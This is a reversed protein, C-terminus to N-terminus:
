FHLGLSAYGKAFNIVSLIPYYGGKHHPWCDFHGGSENHYKSVDWHSTVGKNQGTGDVYVLPHNHPDANHWAALIQATARLQIERGLWQHYAQEHTILGKQLLTPINSVNEIGISQTNVGGAQWFIANGLGLAWAKHGEKDTLGHIGYDIEALYDENNLIDDWGVIDKSVTEHLVALTKLHTGHVHGKMVPAINLYVMKKKPTAHLTAM